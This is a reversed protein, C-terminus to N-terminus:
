PNFPVTSSGTHTATTLSNVPLAHWHETEAGIPESAFATGKPTHRSYLSPPADDSAYRVVHLREGDSLVASFRLKYNVQERLATDRILRVSETLAHAPRERVGYHRLLCFILESDTADAPPATGCCRERLAPALQDIGALEGNHMFGLQEHQFPHCNQLCRAARTAARVHALYLASHSQEAVRALEPDRWAPVANVYRAPAPEGDGYWLLGAGDPHQDMLAERSCRAQAILGHEPNCVLGALCQPEGIWAALRCM